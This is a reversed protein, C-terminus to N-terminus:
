KLACLALRPIGGSISRVLQALILIHSACEQLIEHFPLLSHLESLKKESFNDSRLHVLALV